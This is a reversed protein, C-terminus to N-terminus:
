SERNRKNEKQHKCQISDMASDQVDLMFPALKHVNQGHLYVHEETVMHVLHNNHENYHTYSFGSLKKYPLTTSPFLNQLHYISTAIFKAVLNDSNNTTSQCIPDM